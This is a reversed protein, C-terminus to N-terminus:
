KRVAQTITYSSKQCCLKKRLFACNKLVVCKRYLQMNLFGWSNSCYDYSKVNGNEMNRMWVTKSTLEEILSHM